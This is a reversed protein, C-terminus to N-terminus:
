FMPSPAGQDKGHPPLAGISRRCRVVALTARSQSTWRPAFAQVMPMPTSWWPTRTTMTRCCRCPHSTRPSLPCCTRGGVELQEASSCWARLYRNVGDGGVVSAPLRVLEDDHSGRLTCTSGSSARVARDVFLFDGCLLDRSRLCQRRCPVLYPAEVRIFPLSRRTRCCRRCCSPTSCKIICSESM